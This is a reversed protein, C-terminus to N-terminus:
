WLGLWKAASKTADIEAQAAKKYFNMEDDYLGFSFMEHLDYVVWKGSKRMWKIQEPTAASCNAMACMGAKYTRAVHGTLTDNHAWWQIVNGQNDRAMLHPVDEPKPIAPSWETHTYGGGWALQGKCSNVGSSLYLGEKPVAFAENARPLAVIEEASTIRGSFGPALSPLLDERSSRESSRDELGRRHIRGMNWERGPM